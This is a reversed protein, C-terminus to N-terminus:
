AGQEIKLTITISLTDGQTWNCSDASGYHSSGAIHVLIKGETAVNSVNEIAVENIADTGTLSDNANSFIHTWNVVDQLSGSSNTITPTVSTLKKGTQMKTDTAADQTTGTGIGVYTYATPASLGSIWQAVDACGGAGSSIICNHDLHLKVLLRHLKGSNCKHITHKGTKANYHDIIVEDVMRARQKFIKRL